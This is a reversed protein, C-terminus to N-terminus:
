AGGGFAIDGLCVPLISLADQAKQSWKLRKLEWMMDEMYSAQTIDFDSSVAIEEVVDRLAEALQQSTKM